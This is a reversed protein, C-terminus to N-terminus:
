LLAYAGPTTAAIASPMWITPVYHRWFARWRAITARDVGFLTSLERARRPTPGERIASVLLAVAGLQVNKGLFRVSPPTM